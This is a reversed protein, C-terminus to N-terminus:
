ILQQQSSLATNREAYFWAQWEEITRLRYRGESTRLSLQSPQPSLPSGVLMLVGLQYLETSRPRFTLIDINTFAAAQRTTAGENSHMAEYNQWAFWVKQRLGAVRDQLSDFTDNRYDIPKM